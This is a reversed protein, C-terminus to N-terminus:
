KWLWIQCDNIKNNKLKHKDKEATRKRAYPGLVVKYWLSTKGQAKQISSEIGIFAMKAKLSEAQTQSRFSGCQMKYPGHQQVKYKGVEVQQTKLNKVYTWKEKPPKPLHASQKNTTNQHIKLKAVPQKTAPNNKLAWLGYIFAAVLLLIIVAIIKTKLTVNNDMEVAKKKYPNNKKKAPTRAIYDQNSMFLYLVM